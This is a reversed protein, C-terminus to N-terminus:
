DKLADIANSIERFRKKNALIYYKKWEDFREEAPFSSMLFEEIAEVLVISHSRYTMTHISTELKSLIDIIFDFLGMKNIEMITVSLINYQLIYKLKYRLKITDIEDTIIMITSNNLIDADIDDISSLYIKRGLYMSNKM